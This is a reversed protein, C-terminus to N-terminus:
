GPTMDATPSTTKGKGIERASSSANAGEILYGPTRGFKWNFYFLIFFLLQLGPM